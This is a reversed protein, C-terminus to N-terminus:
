ATCTKGCVVTAISINFGMGGRFTGSGSFVADNGSTRFGQCQAKGAANAQQIFNNPSGLFSWGSAGSASGLGSCDGSGGPRLYCCQAAYLGGNQSYTGAIHGTFTYPATVAGDREIMCADICTEPPVNITQSEAWSQVTTQTQSTTTTTELALSITDTIEEQVVGPLGASEKVTLTDSIRTTVTNTWTQATSKQITKSFTQVQSMNLGNNWQASNVSESKYSTTPTGYKFVNNTNKFIPNGNHDKMYTAHYVLGDCSSYGGNKCASVLIAKAQPSNCGNIMCTEISYSSGTASVDPSLMYDDHVLYSSGDEGQILIAASTQLMAAMVPFAIKVM